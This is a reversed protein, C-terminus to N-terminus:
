ASRKITRDTTDEADLIRRAVVEMRQAELVAGYLGSHAAKLSSSAGSGCHSEDRIELELLAEIIDQLVRLACRTACNAASDREARLEDIDTTQTM